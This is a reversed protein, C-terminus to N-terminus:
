SPAGYITPVTDNSLRNINLKRKENSTDVNKTQASYKFHNQKM